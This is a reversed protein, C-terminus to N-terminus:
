ILQFIPLNSVLALGGLVELMTRSLGLVQIDWINQARLRQCIEFDFIVNCRVQHAFSAVLDVEQFVPVTLTVLGPDFTM